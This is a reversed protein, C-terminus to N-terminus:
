YRWNLKSFQKEIFEDSPLDSIKNLFKKDNSVHGASGWSIKTVGKEGMEKLLRNRLLSQKDKLKSGLSMYFRDEQAWNYAEMSGDIMEVEKKYREELWDRYAQTSDPEPELSAIIAEMDEAGKFDNKILYEQKKIFAKRAPLIRDYWWYHSVELIQDVMEKNIEIPIVIFKNGGVLIAIECYDVDCVIMQEHVQALHSKPPEKKYSNYAFVNMNKCELPVEKTLMAGTILNVGGKTNIFRDLSVFLWPYKKRVLYGNVKRCRRIIDNKM